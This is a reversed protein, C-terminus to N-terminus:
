ILSEYALEHLSGHQETMAELEDETAERGKYTASAIFADCFDPYDSTDVGEIQIDEVKSFDIEITPILPPMVGNMWRSTEYELGSKTKEKYYIKVPTIM